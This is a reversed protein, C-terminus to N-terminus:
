PKGKIRRLSDEKSVLPVVNEPRVLARSDYPDVFDEQFWVHRKPDFMGQLWEIVARVKALEAAEKRYCLFLRISACRGLPLPVLEPAFNVAATPVAGIGVGQRIATLSAASSNTVLEGEALSAVAATKEAWTDQQYMQGVHRVIRHKLLDSLTEPMGFKQIYEFSAFYSYHMWCLPVRIVDLDTPEQVMLAVDSSLRGDVVPTLSCDLHLQLDPYRDILTNLRPVIWFASIGDPASLDVRGALTQDSENAADQFKKASREMQEAWVLVSRATRTLSVGGPTRAFLKANLSSEMQEVRRSITPQTIGMFAGAKAFSGERVVTLFLEIDDWSLRERM